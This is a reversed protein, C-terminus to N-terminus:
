QLSPEGMARSGASSEVQLLPDSGANALAATTGRNPLRLLAQSSSHHASHATHSSISRNQSHTPASPM